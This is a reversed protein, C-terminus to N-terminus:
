YMSQTPSSSDPMQNGYKDYEYSGYDAMLKFCKEGSGHYGFDAYPAYGDQAPAAQYGSFQKTTDTRFVACLQYRGSSEKKYSYRYLRGKTEKDLGDLDGFTNPLAHKDSYHTRVKDHIKSLDSAAKSDRDAAQITQASVGLLVLSLGAGMVWLFVTFIRRTVRTDDRFAFLLVATTVVSLLGPVVVRIFTDSANDDIGILMRILVYVVSFLLGLLMMIVSFLFIGVIVKHITRHQTTPYRQMENRVRAYFFLTMPLWVFMMAAIWLSMEGIVRGIDAGDVGAQHNVLTYICYSIIGGTVLLGVSALALELGYWSMGSTMRRLLSPRRTTVATAPKTPTSLNNTAM